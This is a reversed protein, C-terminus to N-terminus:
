FKFTIGLTLIALGYGLRGEAAINDTFFYRAGGQFAIYVGSANSFVGFSESGSFSFIAYGLTLGAFVDVKPNDKLLDIFHYNGQAGIFIYNFKYGSGFDYSTFDGTLGVGINETVGYEYQGGIPLGGYGITGIGIRAGLYNAGKSFARGSVAATKQQMVPAPKPAAVEAAPKPAPEKVPEVPKSTAAPAAAPKAAPKKPKSQASLTSPSICM